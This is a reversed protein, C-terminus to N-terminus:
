RYVMESFVKLDFMSRIAKRGNTTKCNSFPIQGQHIPYLSKKVTKKVAAQTSSITDVFRERLRESLQGSILASIKDKFGKEMKLAIIKALNNAGKESWSKGGKMRKAFINVNREITGLTRYEMGEPANPLIINKRDKYVVIGDINSKIYNELSTLKKVESELGGCEYKLSDIKNLAKEIEGNKLWRLIHRRAQKDYVNRIVSKALHYPDLQFIDMDLDHGNRIWAAGDGNLVRYVIEDVNYKKAVAADRLIKFEEPEMYGAFAQKEVTKYEKSSPYRKEWGEYIVGVKLEKKGKSSKERSKGQMSLWLGDVEEFLIPVERDGSLKNEKYSEILVKEAEEQKEGIAQIINWVGQHSISQNTFDSVAQSVERYSMECSHEVIKEVLNPSILGITDLGLEKDLLFVYETSGDDKFRKYLVRNLPMEGMLTKITSKRTGKHRLEAKNRNKCLEEDLRALFEVMLTKAVECGIEFFIREIEKFTITNGTLSNM